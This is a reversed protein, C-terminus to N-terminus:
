LSARMDQVSDAIAQALYECSNRSLGAMSIRGDATMYVHWKDLMNRVQNRNLGSYSFMGIQNLIHDWSGPVQRKQLADSLSTRMLKIRDAMSKLEEKWEEFLDPNKLITAVIEAGHRPPNSYMPRIVQKLQSEVNSAGVTDKCLISLAGAREGYLGMNKAFSQALLLEMDNSAFLRLAAADKDLDGSAFGQYASDFFPLLRREKCVQM